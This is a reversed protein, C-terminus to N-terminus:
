LSFVVISSIVVSLVSHEHKYQAVLFRIASAQDDWLLLFLILKPRSSSSIFALSM